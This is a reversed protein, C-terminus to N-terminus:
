RGGTAYMIDRDALRRSAEQTRITWDGHAHFRPSQQLQRVHDSQADQTKEYGRLSTSIEPLTPEHSAM